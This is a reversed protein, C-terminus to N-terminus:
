SLTFNQLCSTCLLDTICEACAPQSTNCMQCDMGDYYLGPSCICYPSSSIFGADLDCLTCVNSVCTICGSNNAPCLPIPDCTGNPSLYKGATCVCISVPAYFVFDAAADCVCDGNIDMIFNNASSCNTCITASSCLYCGLINCKVPISSNDLYYANAAECKGNVLQYNLFTDCLTCATESSCQLCGPMKSSCMEPIYSTNLFYGSAADCSKTASNYVYHLLDNCAECVGSISCCTCGKFKQAPTCKGFLKDNLVIFDKILTDGYFDLFIIGLYAFNNDTIYDYALINIGQFAISCM